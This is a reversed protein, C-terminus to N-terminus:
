PDADGQNRSQERNAVEFARIQIFLSANVVLTKGLEINTAWPAM